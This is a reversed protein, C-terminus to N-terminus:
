SNFISTEPLGKGCNHGPLCESCLYKDYTKSRKNFLKVSQDLEGRCDFCEEDKLSKIHAKDRCVIAFNKTGDIDDGICEIHIKIEPMKEGKHIAPGLM